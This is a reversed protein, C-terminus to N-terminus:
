VDKSMSTLLDDLAANYGQEYAVEASDALSEGLVDTDSKYLSRRKSKAKARWEEDRASSVSSILTDIFTYCEERTAMFRVSGEGIKRFETRAEARLEEIGKPTTM